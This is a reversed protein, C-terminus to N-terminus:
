LKFRQALEELDEAMKSLTESSATVEQITATQEETGAAVNQIGSSMQQTAAAVDHIQQSLGQVTTIIDNFSQAVEGVVVHGAEVDRVSTSMTAVAAAAESQIAEILNKIDRAASGSREALKRVEEAVVAFGKGQEGARAAEIAANLALLNTQDAIQTILEVIQSIEGSRRSLSEISQGVLGTSSGINEMQSTIRTIGATGTEAHRSAQEAAAAVTQTNDSVQEVTASLQSMTSAAENAGATIQQSSSSLQQAAAAVQQSKERLQGAIDKLSVVMENFANALLGIEDCSKVKIEDVTLDGSAVRGAAQEMQKIPNAVAGAIYWSVAGALLVSVVMTGIYVTEINTINHNYISAILRAEYLGFFGMGLLMAIILAFGGMIKARVPVKIKNYACYFNCQRCAGIKQAMTGQLEGRCLTRPVKWCETGRKETFAPCQNKRDEPCNMIEWCVISDKRAM